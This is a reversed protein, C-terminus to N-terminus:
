LSLFVLSSLKVGSQTRLDLFLLSCRDAPRQLVNRHARPFWLNCTKVRFILRSRPIMRIHKSQQLGLLWLMAHSSLDFDVRPNTQRPGPLSRLSSFSVRSKTKLPFLGVCVVWATAVATTWGIGTQVTSKLGTLRKVRNVEASEGNEGGVRQELCQCRSSARRAGYLVGEQHKQKRHCGIVHSSPKKISCYNNLHWIEGSRRVRLVSHSDETSWLTRWTQETQSIEWRFLGDHLLTRAGEKGACAQHRGRVPFCVWYTSTSCIHCQLRCCEWVRERRPWILSPQWQQIISGEM